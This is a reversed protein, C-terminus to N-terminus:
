RPSSRVSSCRGARRGPRGPATLWRRAANLADELPAARPHWKREWELGLWGDYGLAALEDLVARLPVVGDGLFVPTQRPGHQDKVQVHALWPALLLATEPVPEGAFWPHAVDWLARVHPSDVAEVVRAVDAGRPHTDHTELWVQVGAPLEAAALQLRRVARADDGRPFVRVAAAGLDAALTAEALLETVCDTDSTKDSGIRVYSAVCLVTLGSLEARAAARQDATLATNVPEDAASRLELGSWGTRKALEVTEALSQGPCGLTSFALKSMM